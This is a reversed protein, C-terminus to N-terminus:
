KESKIYQGNWDIERQFPDLGQELMRALKRRTVPVNNKSEVMLKGGAQSIYEWAQEETLLRSDDVMKVEPEYEQLGRTFDRVTITSDPYFWSRNEWQFPEGTMRLMGTATIKQITEFDPDDPKVDYLPTLYAKQELLASQVKRVSINRPDRNEKVALAALTGAAQGTLLVVPQLRTAGNILNSVSIAKDAVIMGNTKEPILCGLPVSFSPIPPFNIKGVAPNCDHHHDVPYDGVSIGTRYLANKQGYRNEVDNLTLQVLGKLRRGERHYPLYALGDSTTFEDDALGLHKYGLEHQIYYVFQLTYNKAQQLIRNRKKRSMEVVNLYVDNGKKPWNIMYKGHPMKGYTIMQECDIQIKDVTETCCGAFNEPDYGGPRPITRDAGEGYDKLIAVWTLDQVIQNVQEPALSEGTESRADMGVRYASGSLPLCEGLDTADVVIKAKVSFRKGRNDQFVAGTVQNGSKLIKTVYYGYIVDLEKERSAMAKFINDAVHPEFQTASVWGTWLAAQGGYHTRLQERFENWIGSPLDHNGDTAGVGQATLMGGLWPTEEVILTRVGNRAAALGASIGGTTGGVVLVDVSRDEVVARSQAYGLRDSSLITLLLFYFKIGRM